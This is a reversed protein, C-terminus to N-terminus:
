LMKWLSKQAWKIRGTKDTGHSFSSASARIAALLKILLASLSMWNKRMIIQAKFKYEAYDSVEDKKRFYIKDTEETKSGTLNVRNTTVAMGNDMQYGPNQNLQFNLTMPAEITADMRQQIQQRVEKNNNRTGLQKYLKNYNPADLGDIPVM